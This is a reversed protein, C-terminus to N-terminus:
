ASRRTLDRAQQQRARRHAPQERLYVKLRYGYPAGELEKKLDAYEAPKAAKTRYIISSPGAITAAGHQGVHMYSSCTSPEYTGIEAPFIAIVESGERKGFKRFIVPTIEDQKFETM